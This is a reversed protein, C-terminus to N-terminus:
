SGVLRAWLALDAPHLHCDHISRQFLRKLDKHNLNHRLYNHTNYISFIFLALGVTCAKSDTMFFMMNMRLRPELNRISFPLCGLLFPCNVFHEISDETDPNLCFLCPQAFQYRRGTHFGNCLWRVCANHVKPPVRKSLFRM